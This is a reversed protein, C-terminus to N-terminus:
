GAPELSAAPEISAAPELEASPELLAIAGLEVLPAAPRPLLPDFFGRHDSRAREDDFFDEFREVGGNFARLAM